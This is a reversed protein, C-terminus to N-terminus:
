NKVLLAKATNYPMVVEILKKTILEDVVIDDVLVSENKSYAVRPAALYWGTGRNSLTWGQKLKMLVENQFM